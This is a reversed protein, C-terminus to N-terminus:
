AQIPPAAAPATTTTTARLRRRRDAAGEGAGSGASSSRRFSLSDRVRAASRSSNSAPSVVTSWASGAASLTSSRRRRTCSSAREAASSICPWCGGLQPRANKNGSAPEDPRLCSARLRTQRLLPSTPSIGTEGANLSSAASLAAETSGWVYVAAEATLQGSGAVRVSGKCLNAHPERLNGRFSERGLKSIDAGVAVSGGAPDPQRVAGTPGFRRSFDDRRAACPQVGSAPAAEVCAISRASQGSSRPRRV